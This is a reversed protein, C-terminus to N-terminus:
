GKLFRRPMICYWLLLIWNFLVTPYLAPTMGWGEEPGYDMVFMHDTFIKGFGLKSEDAPKQKPCNTRQIKLEAM